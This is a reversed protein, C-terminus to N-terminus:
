LCIVPNEVLCLCERASSLLLSMVEPEELRRGVLFLVAMMCRVQHWLFAQGCVEFYFMDEGGGTHVSVPVIRTSLIVSGCLRSVLLCSVLVGWFTIASDHCLSVCISSM